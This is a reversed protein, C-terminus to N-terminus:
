TTKLFLTYKDGKFCTILEKCRVNLNTLDCKDKIFYVSM